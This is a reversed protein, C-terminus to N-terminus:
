QRGVCSLGSYPLAMFDLCARASNGGCSCRLPVTHVPTLASLNRGNVQIQTYIDRCCVYLSVHVFLEQESRLGFVERHTLQALRNTM